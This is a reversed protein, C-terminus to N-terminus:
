VLSKLMYTYIQLVKFTICMREQFVCTANIVWIFAYQQLWQVNSDCQIPLVELHSFFIQFVLHVSYSCSPCHLFWSSFHLIYKKSNKKALTYIVSSVAIKMLLTLSCKNKLVNPKILLRYRWETSMIKVPMQFGSVLCVGSIWCM